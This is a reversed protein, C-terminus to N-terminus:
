NGLKLYGDNLLYVRDCKKALEHNHTVVIVGKNLNKITSILLDHIQSSNTNDLNGSPEDALILNPDNFLARGIAVRQKEGGSLLKALHDIHTGMGVSDLIKKARDKLDTKRSIKGPMIINELVTYEDLLNYNQFVFGVYKNRILNSTDTLANKGSIELTGSDPYDLTGLIHLLTTKGSGSPGIIAITEGSHVKLSANKIIQYKSPQVFTKTLNKANLIPPNM